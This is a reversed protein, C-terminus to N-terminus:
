RQLAIETNTPSLAKKRLPWAVLIRRFSLLQLDFHILYSSSKGGGDQAYTQEGDHSAGCNGRCQADDFFM